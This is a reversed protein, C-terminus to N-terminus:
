SDGDVAELDRAASKTEDDQVPMVHVQINDPRFLSAQYTQAYVQNPDMMIGTATNWQYHYYASQDQLAATASSTPYLDAHPSFTTAAVTSTSTMERDAKSRRPARPIKEGNTREYKREGRIRPIAPVSDGNKSKRKRTQLAGDKKMSTPRAIHHLKYYLGCANCVPDGDANRRWLTTNTGNCNSCILGQRRSASAGANQSSRVSSSSKKSSKAVKVTPAEPPVELIPPNGLPSTYIVQSQYTTPQQQQPQQQTLTQKSCNACMMGGNVPKAGVGCSQSCKVCEYVATTTPYAAALNINLNTTDYPLSSRDYLNPTAFSGLTGITNVPNIPYPLYYMQPSDIMGGFGSYDFSPTHFAQQTPVTEQKPEYSMASSNTIVSQREPAPYEDLKMRSLESINQDEKQEPPDMNQTPLRLRGMPQTSPMDVWGNSDSYNTDM